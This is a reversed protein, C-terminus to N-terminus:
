LGRTFWYVLFLGLVLISILIMLMNIPKDKVRIRIEREKNEYYMELLSIMNLIISAVPLGLMLLLATFNGFVGNNLSKYFQDLVDFLHLQVNFSIKMVACFILYLPIVILWVSLATYRGTESSNNKEPETLKEQEIKVM